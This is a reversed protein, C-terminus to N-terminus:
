SAATAPATSSSATASRGIKERRPPRHRDPHRAHRRRRLRRPRRRHVEPRLRRQRPLEAPLGRLRPGRFDARHLRLRAGLPQAARRAPLRDAQLAAQAVRGAAADAPGRHGPGRKKWTIVSAPRGTAAGRLFPQGAATLQRPAHRRCSRRRRTRDADGPPPTLCKGTAPRCISACWDADDTGTAATTFLM